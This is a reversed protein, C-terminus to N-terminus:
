QWYKLGAGHIEDQRRWKQSDKWRINKQGRRRASLCTPISAVDTHCRLNPSSIGFASFLPSSFTIKSFIGWSFTSEIKASLSSATPAERSCRCLSSVTDLDSIATELICDNTGHKGLQKEPPRVGSGVGKCSSGGGAPTHEIEGFRIVKLLNQKM